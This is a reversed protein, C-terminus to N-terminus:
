GKSGGVGRQAANAGARGLATDATGFASYAGIAFIVSVAVTLLALTRLRGPTGSLSRRLSTKVDDVRGAVTAVGTTQNASARQSM